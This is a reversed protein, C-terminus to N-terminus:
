TQLAPNQLGSAIGFNQALSSSQRPPTHLGSVRKQTFHRTLASQGLPTHAGTSFKQTGHKASRSQTVPTHSTALRCHRDHVASM